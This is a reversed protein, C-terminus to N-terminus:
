NAWEDASLGTIETITAPEFGKTLMAQAISKAKQKAEVEAMKARHEANQRATAELGARHEAQTARHEANQRATIEMEVQDEAVQRSASEVAVQAEAINAREDAPLIPEGTQGDIVLFGDKAENAGLWINNIQSYLLGQSNPQVKTYIGGHLRYGLMSYSLKPDIMRERLGSDIIFYEEIGMQQYVAVKKQLDDRRYRPSVVELAFIPQTGEEQVRFSSRPKNPEKVEPVVAIDPAPESMGVIGWIMKLQSFITIDPNHQYLYCFISFLAAIDKNHQSGQMFMDGEQPDMFDDQTLPVMVLDENGEDDYIVNYRYGYYFEDEEEEDVTFTLPREMIELTM